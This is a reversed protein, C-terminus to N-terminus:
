SSRRSVFRRQRCPPFRREQRDAEVAMPMLVAITRVTSAEAAALSAGSLGGVVGGDGNAGGGGLAGGSVGGNCGGDLGGKGIEGGGSM